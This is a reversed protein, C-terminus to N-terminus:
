PVVDTGRVDLVAGRSVGVPAGGRPVTPVPRPVRYLGPADTVFIGVPRGEARGRELREVAWAERKAAHWGGPRGLRRVVRARM